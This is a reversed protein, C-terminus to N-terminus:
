AKSAQQMREVIFDKVQDPKMGLSIALEGYLTDEAMHLYKEDGATVRKGAATRSKKRQYTTKIIRVLERCDCTKIADRYCLERKREDPVWLTEIQEMSDILKLAEERNIVPRIIVKQNDVPTFVRGGLVHLPELTYYLRDKPIGPLDLTGVELIRCVGQPGYVIYDGAQFM